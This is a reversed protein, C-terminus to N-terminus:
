LVFIVSISFMGLAVLKSVAAARLVCLSLISYRINCVQIGFGIQICFGFLNFMVYRICTHQNPLNIMVGFNSSIFLTKFIQSKSVFSLFMLLLTVKFLFFICICMLVFNLSWM